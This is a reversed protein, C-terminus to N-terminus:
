GKEYWGLSAQYKDKNPKLHSFVKICNFAIITIQKTIKWYNNNQKTIVVGVNLLRAEPERNNCQSLKKKSYFKVNM